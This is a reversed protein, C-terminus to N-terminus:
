RMETPAKQGLMPLWACCCVLCPNRSLRNWRLCDIRVTWLGRTGYGLGPDGARRVTVLWLGASRSLPRDYPSPPEGCGLYRLDTFRLCWGGGREDEPLANTSPPRPHAPMFRHSAQGFSYRRGACRCLVSSCFCFRDGARAKGQAANRQAACSGSSRLLGLCVYVGM